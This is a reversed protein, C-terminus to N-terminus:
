ARCYRLSEVCLSDETHRFSWWPRVTAPEAILGVGPNPSPARTMNMLIPHRATELGGQESVMRLFYSANYRCARKATTYIVVLQRLQGRFAADNIEGRPQADMGADNDTTQLMFTDDLVVSEVIQFFGESQLINACVSVDAASNYARNLGTM